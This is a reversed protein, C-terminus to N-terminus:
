LKIVTRDKRLQNAVESILRRDDLEETKGPAYRSLRETLQKLRKQESTTRRAKKALKRQEQLLKNYKDGRTTTLGFLESTLIQDVRWGEVDEPESVIEVGASTERLVAYNADIAAQVMLPSHATAIFQINPFHASLKDMIVTQWLPHLHLDIEDILVIGSQDLPSTNNRNFLRWALDIAFSMVTKYGLSYNDFPIKKGYRNSLLVTPPAMKRGVLRPAIIEIDNVHEIDPLLSVLMAKVSQLFLTYKSRHDKTDLKAYNLTHLIEQADFLVTKEGLFSPITDELDSDNMNLRGLVRSASYAYIYIINNYFTDPQKTFVRHEVKDLEGRKNTAISISSLCQPINKDTTPTSLKHKALFTVRIDCHKERKNQRRIMNLLTENEENNILPEISRLPISVGPTNPDPDPFQPKMWAISQLITSKGVGNDGLLLTWRPLASHKGILNIAAEGFTRFNVLELSKIYIPTDVM